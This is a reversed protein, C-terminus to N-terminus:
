CIAVGNRRDDGAATLSKGNLVVTHAGGFFLSKELWRHVEVGLKEKDFDGKFGKGINFFGHELHVRPSNVAANVALQYDTLYSIVQAISAPIRSAGGSGTIIEIKQMEDLVLTPSMMSSLRTDEEWSHFGNPLLAAEGMMNNMQIDTGEIFYGCGEGLSSTLSIANGQKDVINFHTTAGRKNTSKKAQSKEKQFNQGLVKELHGILGLKSNKATELKQFVTFLTLAHETQFPQVPLKEQELYKLFLALQAGGSSPLPNTLITKNKYSFTLPKRLIVDYNEFDSLQLFGGNQGYDAAVKQAIEGKYFLDQGERALVELFDAFQPMKMTEGINKLQGNDFFVSNAQKDVKLISELLQFDFYQFDNIVIGNKALDIAPQVLERMPMSGFKEHLAYVGAIAGPVGSSGKGVHFIETTTGFNVTIPYFDVAEAIKKVQPTQCFFDFIMSQGDATFVNAFAGGGLGTMCPEAVCSAFFAAIAADYANGGSKLIESAAEATKEHGASIAFSM